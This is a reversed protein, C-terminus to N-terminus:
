RHTPSIQVYIFAVFVIPILVGGDRVMEREREKRVCVCLCVCASVCVYM